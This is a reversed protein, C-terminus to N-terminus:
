RTACLAIGPSRRLGRSLKVFHPRRAEQGSRSLNKLTDNVEQYSNRGGQNSMRLTTAAARAAPGSGEFRLLRPQRAGGRETHDMMPQVVAVFAEAVRLKCQVFRARHPSTDGGRSRVRGCADGVRCRRAARYMQRRPQTGLADHRQLTKTASKHRRERLSPSLGISDACSTLWIWRVRREERGRIRGNAGLM